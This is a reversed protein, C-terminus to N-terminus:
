AAVAQVESIDLLRRRQFGGQKVVPTRQGPDCPSPPTGPGEMQRPASQEVREVNGHDESRDPKSKEVNSVSVAGVVNAGRQAGQPNISVGSKTDRHAPGTQVPPAREGARAHVSSDM